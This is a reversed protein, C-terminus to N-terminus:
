SVQDLYDAFALLEACVQALTEPLHQMLVQMRAPDFRHAYVNRVIHRFGRYEDLAHRTDASIVAPRMLPVESTMQELLLTHWNAGQPVDGDITAAILQFLRELGAYFGHLNLAVGDLYLDDGSM